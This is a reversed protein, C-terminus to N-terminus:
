RRLSRRESTKGLGSAGRLSDQVEEILKHEEYRKMWWATQDDAGDFLWYLSADRKGREYSSSSIAGGSKKYHTFYLSFRRTCSNELKVSLYQGTGRPFEDLQGWADFSTCLPVPPGGLLQYVCSARSPSYFLRLLERIERKPDLERIIKEVEKLSRCRGKGKYIDVSHNYGRMELRSYFSSPRGRKNPLVHVHIVMTLPSASNELYRKGSWTGTQLYEGDIGDPSSDRYLHFNHDVFPLVM